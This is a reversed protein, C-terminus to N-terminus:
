EGRMMKSCYNAVRELDNNGRLKGYTSEPILTKVYRVIVDIGNAGGKINVNSSSGNSEGNKNLLQCLGIANAGEFKNSLEIASKALKEIVDNADPKSIDSKTLEAILAMKIVNITEIDNSHEALYIGVIYDALDEKCINSSMRMVENMIRLLEEM